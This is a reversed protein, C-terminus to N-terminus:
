HNRGAKRREEGRERRMSGSIEGEVLRVAIVSHLRLSLMRGDSFTAGLRWAKLVYELAAHHRPM